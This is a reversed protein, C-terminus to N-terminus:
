ANVNNHVSLIREKPFHIYVRNMAPMHVNQVCRQRLRSHRTFIHKPQVEKNSIINTCLCIGFVFFSFFIQWWEYQLMVSSCKRDTKGVFQYYNQSKKEMRIFAAKSFLSIWVNSSCALKRWKSWWFHNFYISVSVYEHM